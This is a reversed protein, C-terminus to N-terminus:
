PAELVGQARAILRRTQRDFVAAAALEEWVKRYLAIEAQDDLWMEANVTEAIVLREDFVWFGHKPTVRLEATFPVIGLRVTDLGVLSILRDLQGAMVKAPGYRVYLAPEWVLIQFQRGPEYLLAQRKMRARVGDEVDNVTGHLTTSNLLIHRAYAPTQLIGPVTSPEFARVVTSKSEESVSIEQRVKHGTALQRRWSRYRTELGRLRGRLEAATEPKGVAEAWADLDASTPTQKGSELKSVKSQTCGLRQALQRGTLGAETRLERLRAGLYVRAQQFDTSM